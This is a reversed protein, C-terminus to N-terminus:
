TSLDIADNPTVEGFIPFDAIGRERAEAQIRPVWLRFFAADVHKATDVRFGDVHFRKIWSAYIQALGKMVNPKESFLDDLGFFDGQEFRLTSCAGFDINGRDHYNLADNLWGPKRPHRDEPAVYPVEPMYRAALCPFTKATAYRDPMVFYIRQSALSSVTGPKALSAQEATSPTSPGASSGSGALALALLAIAGAVASGSRRAV